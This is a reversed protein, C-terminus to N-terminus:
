IMRVDIWLYNAYASYLLGQRNRSGILNAAVLSSRLHYIWIFCTRCYYSSICTKAHRYYKNYNLDVPFWDTYISISVPPPTWSCCHKLLRHRLVITAFFHKLPIWTISKIIFLKLQTLIHMANQSLRQVLILRPVLVGKIFANRWRVWGRGYVDCQRSTAAGNNWALRM